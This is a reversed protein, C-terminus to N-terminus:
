TLAEITKTTEFSQLFNLLFFQENRKLNMKLNKETSSATECLQRKIWCVNRLTRSSTSEDKQEQIKDFAALISHNLINIQQLLTLTKKDNKEYIYIYYMYGACTSLDNRRMWHM